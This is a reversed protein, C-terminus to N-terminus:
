SCLIVNTLKTLKLLKFINSIEVVSVTTVRVTYNYRVKCYRHTPLGVAVIGRPKVLYFIELLPILYNLATFVTKNTAREQSFIKEQNECSM